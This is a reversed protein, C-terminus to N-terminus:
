TECRVIAEQNCVYACLECGDCLDTVIEYINDTVEIAPCGLVRVCLSCQNCLEQVVKFPVRKDGVSVRKDYVVCPASCIVVNAGDGATANRLAALTSEEDNPDVEFFDSVGLGKV